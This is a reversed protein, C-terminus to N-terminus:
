LDRKSASNEALRKIISIEKQVRDDWSGLNEASKLADNRMRSLANPNDQLFRLADAGRRSREKKPIWLVCSDNFGAERAAEDDGNSDSLIMALGAGLAELNSNSLQGDQNFSVYIHHSSLMKGVASRPVSGLIGVSDVLDKQKLLSILEEKQSGDGVFNLMGMGGQNRFNAWTNVVSIVDKSQELRGVVIVKLGESERDSERRGPSFKEIGNTWLAVPSDPHIENKCFRKIESGDNTALVQDFNTRYAWRLIFNRRFRLLSDYITKPMGLLRLVVPQGAFRKVVAGGLVNERDTYFLAGSNRMASSLSLWALTIRTFFDSEPMWFYKEVAFVTVSGKLGSVSVETRRSSFVPEKSLDYLYVKFNIGERDVGEIIRAIAPVGSPDWTGERLSDRLGSYLRLFFVVSM